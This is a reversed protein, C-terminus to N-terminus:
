EDFVEVVLWEYGFKEVLADDRLGLQIRLQFEDPYFNVHGDYVYRRYRQCPVILIVRYRALKRWRELSSRADPIHELTKFSALTDFAGEHFDFDDVFGHLIQWSDGQENEQNPDVGVCKFGAKALSKIFSGSGCGIDIVNEGVVFEMAREIIKRSCDTDRRCRPVNVPNEAADYYRFGRGQLGNFFAAVFKRDSLVPPVYHEIFYNIRNTISKDLLWNM